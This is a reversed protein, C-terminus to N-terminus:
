AQRTDSYGKKKEERPKERKIKWNKLHKDASKEESQFFQSYLHDISSM